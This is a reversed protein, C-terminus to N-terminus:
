NNLILNEKLYRIQDPGIGGDILIIEGIFLRSLFNKQRTM